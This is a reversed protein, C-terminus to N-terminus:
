ILGVLFWYPIIIAIFFLVFLVNKLTHYVLFQKQTMCGFAFFLLFTVYEYPLFVMDTSFNFVFLAALPSLAISEAIQYIMGSFGALMALPTMAFNAIVGFGLVGTLTGVTGLGDLASTAAKAILGNIGTAACGAGIAMCSALFLLTGWPVAVIDEKKAVDIGPVFLLLPIIMFALMSDYGHWQYTIIYLMIIAVAIAAKKEEATIKGLANYQEIFYEKSGRDATKKTSRTMVFIMALCFFLVPWNYIFMQMFNLDFEPNVTRVSGITASMTLPYYLFMRVTSAGLMGAMMIIAAERNKNYGMAMCFGFCLAACVISGCAFTCISIAFCAFFVAYVSKNFSGGTKVGIWYSIRKLLGCRNLTNALIMTCLAGYITTGLYPAFVSSAPLVNLAILLAPWIIAPIALDTLEFASWLLMWLTIAVFMKLEYTFVENTPILAFLVPIVVSILLKIYVSKDIAANKTM